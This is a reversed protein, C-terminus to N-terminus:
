DKPSARAFSTWFVVFDDHNQQLLDDVNMIKSWLFHRLNIRGFKSIQNCHQSHNVVTNLGHSAMVFLPVEVPGHNDVDRKGVHRSDDTEEGDLVAVLVCQQPSKHQPGNSTQSNSTTYVSKPSVSRVLCCKSQAHEKHEYVGNCVLSANPMPRSIVAYM